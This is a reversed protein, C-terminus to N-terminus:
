EARNFIFESWLTRTLNDRALAIPGVSTSEATAEVPKKCIRLGYIVIDHGM